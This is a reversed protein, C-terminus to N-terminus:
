RAEARPIPESPPAPMPALAIWLAVIPTLMGGILFLVAPMDEERAFDVTHELLRVLDVAMPSWCVLVIWAFWRARSASVMALFAVASGLIMGLLQFNLLQWLSAGFRQALWAIGILAALSIWFLLRWRGRM